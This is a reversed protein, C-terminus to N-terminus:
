VLQQEEMMREDKMNIKIHGENLIKRESEFITQKAELWFRFCFLTVFPILLCWYFGIWPELTTQLSLLFSNLAMCTTIWRCGWDTFNSERRDKLYWNLVAPVFMSFTQFSIYFCTKGRKSIARHYKLHAELKSIICLPHFFYNSMFLFHQRMIVDLLRMWLIHTLPTLTCHTGGCILILYGATVHVAFVCVQQTVYHLYVFAHACPRGNDWKITVVFTSIFHPTMQWCHLCNCSEAFSYISKRDKQPM